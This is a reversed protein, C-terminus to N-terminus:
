SHSAARLGQGCRPPITLAALAKLKTVQSGGALHDAEQQSNAQRYNRYQKYKWVSWGMHSASTQGQRTAGDYKTSVGSAM